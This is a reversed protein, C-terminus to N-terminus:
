SATMETQLMFICAIGGAVETQKLNSMRLSLHAVADSGDVILIRACARRRVRNVISAVFTHQV